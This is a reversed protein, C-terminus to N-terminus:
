PMRFLSLNSPARTLNLPVQTVPNHSFDVFEIPYNIPPVRQLRNWSADLERISSPIGNLEILENNFVMLSVLGEHLRPLRTLSNTHLSVDKLSDPFNTLTTIENCSADLFTLNEPLNPIVALNNDSILLSTLSTIQSLCDPLSTLTLGRLDLTSAGNQYADRIRRAAIARGSNMPLPGSISALSEWNQLKQEFLLDSTKTFLFHGCLAENFDADNMAVNNHAEKSVPIISPADVRPRGLKGALDALVSNNIHRSTANAANASPGAPQPASNPPSGSAYLFQNSAVTYSAASTPSFNHNM